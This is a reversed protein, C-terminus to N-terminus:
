RKAVCLNYPNLNFGYTELDKVVIIYFLLTSRLLGYLAKQIRVFLLPRGKSSMIVYKHYINLAVKVVLDDLPGELLVIIDEYMETHLYAGPIDFTAVNCGGHEDVVETILVSETVAMTSAADEKNIKGWQNSRDACSRGKIDETRKEKMFILSAVAKERQKKMLNTSDM